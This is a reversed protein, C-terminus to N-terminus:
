VKVAAVQAAVEDLQAAIKALQAQADAPTDPHSRIAGIIDAVSKVLGPILPLLVGLLNM